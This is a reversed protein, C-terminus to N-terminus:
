GRGRWGQVHKSPPSKIIPSDGTVLATFPYTHNFKSKFPSCPCYYLWSTMHKGVTYLVEVLTWICEMCRRVLFTVMWRVPQPRLGTSRPLKIIRLHHTFLRRQDWRCPWLHVLVQPWHYNFLEYIHIKQKRYEKVSWSIFGGCAWAIYLWKSMSMHWMEVGCKGIIWLLM